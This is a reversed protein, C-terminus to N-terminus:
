SMRLNSGTPSFGPDMWQICFRNFFSKRNSGLITSALWKKSVFCKRGLGSRASGSRFSSYPSKWKSCLNRQTWHPERHASVLTPAGEWTSRGEFLQAVTICSSKRGTLLFFWSACICAHCLSLHIWIHWVPSSWLFYFFHLTPSTRHTFDHVVTRKKKREQARIWESVDVLCLVKSVLVFGLLVSPPSSTVAPTIAAWMLCVTVLTCLLVTSHVCM